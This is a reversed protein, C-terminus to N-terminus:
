TTSGASRHRARRGGQHPLRPVRPDARRLLDRLGQRGPGRHLRPPRVSSSRAAPPRSSRTPRRSSRTPTPVLVETLTAESAAMVLPNGNFTGYQHVRGSAMEEAIEDTMGIAGGPYGGCIAKALTVMDPQVGFRQTAGGYGITAGTKVEDFILKVGHETCLERVRELYGERPPIININMM